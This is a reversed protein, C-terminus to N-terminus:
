NQCGYLFNIPKNNLRKYDILSKTAGCGQLISVYQCYTCNESAFIAVENRSVSTQKM